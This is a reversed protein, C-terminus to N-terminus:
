LPFVNNKRYCRIKMKENTENKNRENALHHCFLNKIRQANHLFSLFIHTKNNSEIKREYIVNNNEKERARLYLAKTTTSKRAAKELLMMLM